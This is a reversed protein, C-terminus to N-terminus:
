YGVPRGYWRLVCQKTDHKANGPSIYTESDSTSDSGARKAELTREDYVAPRSGALLFRSTQSADLYLVGSSQYHYHGNPVHQEPTCPPSEEQTEPTTTYYNPTAGVNNSSSDTVETEGINQGPQFVHGYAYALYAPNYSYSIHTKWDAM